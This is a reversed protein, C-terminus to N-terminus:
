NQLFVRFTVVLLFVEPKIRRWAPNGTPWARQQGENKPPSPIIFDGRCVEYNFAYHSHSKKPKVLLNIKFSNKYLYQWLNREFNIVNSHAHLFYYTYDSSSSVGSDLRRSDGIYLTQRTLM